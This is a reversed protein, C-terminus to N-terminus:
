AGLASAKYVMDMYRDWPWHAGPDTHTADPVENHGIIHQRDMPIRFKRCLAAACRASALLMEEPFVTDAAHGEHEFGISRSNYSNAHLCKKEDAVMQCVDGHISFLYHAATPVPRGPKQFWSITGKYTGEMTHIVIRDVAVGAKRTYICDRAAPAYSNM